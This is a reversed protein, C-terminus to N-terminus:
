NKSGSLIESKFNEVISVFANPASQGLGCKSACQMTESLLLLEKLYKMSCKRKKLMKIGELLTETGYRCPTCQGCSEEVFFEM